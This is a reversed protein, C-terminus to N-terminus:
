YEVMGDRYRSVLEKLATVAEDADALSWDPRDSAAVSIAILSADQLKGSVPVPPEHLASWGALTRSLWTDDQRALEGLEALEPGPFRKVTEGDLAQEVSRMELLPWRYRDAVEHIIALVTRYLHFLAHERHYLSQARADPAASSQAEHWASIAKSAFFLAQNTRTYVENAM